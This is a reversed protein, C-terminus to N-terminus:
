SDKQPHEQRFLTWEDVVSGDPLHCYGVDGKETHEISLTGGKKICYLSAPNPIRLPKVVTKSRDDVQQQCGGLGGALVVALLAGAVVKREGM